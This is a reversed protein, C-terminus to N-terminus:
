LIENGTSGSTELKVEGERRRGGGGQRGEEEEEKSKEWAERMTGESILDWCKSEKKNEDL